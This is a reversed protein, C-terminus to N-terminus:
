TIYCIVHNSSPTVMLFITQQTRRTAAADNRAPQALV